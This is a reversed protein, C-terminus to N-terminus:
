YYIDNPVNIESKIQIPAEYIYIKSLLLSVM